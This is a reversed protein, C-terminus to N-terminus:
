NSHTSLTLNPPQNNSINTSLIFFDRKTITPLSVPRVNNLSYVHIQGYPTLIIKVRDTLLRNQKNQFVFYDCGLPSNPSAFHQLLVVRCHFAWCFQLWDCIFWVLNSYHAIDMYCCDVRTLNLLHMGYLVSNDQFFSTLCLVFRNLPADIFNWGDKFWFYYCKNWM